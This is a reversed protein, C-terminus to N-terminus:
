IIIKSERLTKLKKLENIQAQKEVILKNKLPEDNELEAKKLGSNINLVANKIKREIIRVMVDIIQYKPHINLREEMLRGSLYEIFKEDDIYEFVTASNWGNQRAAKKIFNWLKKTWKGYFFTNDIRSEVINYYNPNSIILLLLYLETEIDRNKASKDAATNIPLTRQKQSLKDFERKIIAEQLNLPQSLKKIFDIKLIADHMNNHYLFFRELIIIKENATFLKKGNILYKIIFDSGSIAEKLLIDFDEKTYDDFFSGPDQGEPLRLVVPDIGKKNIISISRLSAKRGAEDPDFVLYINKTYRLIYSIQEETLATGLPAVTNKYGEKYMRIVDFYGEVIFVSSEQRISEEANYLGYLQKGKHFIFNENTNIYKPSNVEEKEFIRGGFGIFRGINDQIPFIIRNRFRDYYGRGSRKKLILGSEEICDTSFGRSAFSRLVHDWRNSAYGLNFIKITELDLKRNKLYNLAKRGIDSSLNKKFLDVANSNIKYFTDYKNQDRSFGKGIKLSIGVKDALINVSDPFSIGKFKMLFNFVNGGVGCGFCHFIQKGPSVVFSPTKEIHFPCLGKYNEGAKQLHVYEGIIDAINVREKIENIIEEAIYL